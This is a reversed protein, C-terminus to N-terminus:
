HQQLAIQKEHECADSGENKPLHLPGLPRLVLLSEKLVFTNFQKPALTLPILLILSQLRPIKDM